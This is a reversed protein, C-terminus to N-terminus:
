KQIKKVIPRVMVETGFRYGPYFIIVDDSIFIEDHKYPDFSKENEETLTIVQGVQKDKLLKIQESGLASFLNNIIGRIREPTSEEKSVLFLESLPAGWGNDTLAVLLERVADKKAYSVKLELDHKEKTLVAINDRLHREVQNPLPKEKVGHQKSEENEATNERQVVEQKNDIVPKKFSLIKESASQENYLELVFCDDPLQSLMDNLVGYASHFLDKFGQLYEGVKKIVSGDTLNYGIYEFLHFRKSTLERNISKEADFMDEAKGQLLKPTLALYNNSIYDLLWLKRLLEIIMNPHKIITPNNKYDACIHAGINKGHEYEIDERKIGSLNKSKLLTETKEILTDSRQDGLIACLEYACRLVVKEALEM